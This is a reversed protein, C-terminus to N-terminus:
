TLKLLAPPKIHPAFFEKVFIMVIVQAMDLSTERLGLSRRTDFEVHVIRGLM